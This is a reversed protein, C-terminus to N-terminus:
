SHSLVSLMNWGTPCFGPCIPHPPLYDLSGPPHYYMGLFLSLQSSSIWSFSLPLPDPLSRGQIEWLIDQIFCTAQKLKTLHQRHTLFLLTLQKSISQVDKKSKPHQYEGRIQGVASQYSLININAGNDRRGYNMPQHHALMLGKRTLKSVPKAWYQLKKFVVHDGENKWTSLSLELNKQNQTEPFFAQIKYKRCSGM